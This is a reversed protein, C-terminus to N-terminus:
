DSSAAGSYSGAFFMGTGYHAGKEYDVLLLAAILMIGTCVALVSELPMSPKEEEAVAPKSPAAARAPKAPKREKAPASKAPRRQAAM